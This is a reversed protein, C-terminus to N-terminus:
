YLWFDWIVILAGPCENKPSINQSKINKVEPLHGRSYVYDYRVVPVVQIISYM